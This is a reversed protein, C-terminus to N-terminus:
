GRWEKALSVAAVADNGYADAGVYDKIREDIAGGGVMIKVGDRLGAAQIAEVTAKMSEVALTLLGSMGVAVPRMEAIAEVFKEPPVDVGLDRVEFGNVDLMFTVIDKGLDHIDGSVTGMVVGGLRVADATQDLSPEVMEMIQRLIEASMVLEPLFFEGMEFREGIIEMARRSLDLVELPDRGGDIMEGAIRLAGEEDMETIAAVLDKTMCKGRVRYEGYAEELASMRDDRFFYGCDIRGLWRWEQVAAQGMGDQEPLVAPRLVPLTLPTSSNVGINFPALEIKLTKSFSM